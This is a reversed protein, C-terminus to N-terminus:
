ILSNASIHQAVFQADRGMGYIAQSAVTHQFRLGVFYLGPATAVIGREHVPQGAKDFVEDRNLPEIFGYRAQFGTCWVVSLTELSVIRGDSCHIGAQDIGTVRGVLDVGFVEALQEPSPPTTPDGKNAQVLRRGLWSNAKLDLLRFWKMLTYISIGMIEPPIIQNGSVSFTINDFRESRALDECIQIGSNGSGVVFVHGAKIQEPNRYESSHLQSITSPLEAAFSPTKPNRLTGTCVVVNVTEYTSDATVVYWTKNKTQKVSIAETHEHIPPNVAAVYSGFYHLVDAKMGLANRSAGAAFEDPAGPLANMWNATNMHFSDWRRYWESFARDKELVVHAIQNQRLFYSTAIGAPGGGVIVTNVSEEM